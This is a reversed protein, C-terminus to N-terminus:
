GLLVADTTPSPNPHEYDVGLMGVSALELQLDAVKRRQEAARLDVAAMELEHMSRRLIMANRTCEAQLAIRNQEFRAMEAELDATLSPKPIWVPIIPLKAPPQPPITQRPGTPLAKGATPTPKVSPSTLNEYSGGQPVSPSAPPPPPPPPPQARRPGSPIPRIDSKSESSKKADGSDLLRPKTQKEEMNKRAIPSASRRDRTKVPSPVQMHQPPPSRSRRRKQPTEYQGEERERSPSWRAPGNSETNMNVSADRPPRTRSRSRERAQWDRVSERDRRQPRPSVPAHDRRPPEPSMSRRPVYSDRHVPSRRHPPPPSPARYRPPSLRHRHPDDFRQPPPSRDRRGELRSEWTRDRRDPPPVYHDRERPRDRARYRDGSYREDRGNFNPAVYSDGDRQSRSYKPPSRRGDYTDRRNDYHERDGRYHDPLTASPRAPSRRHFEDDRRRHSSSPEPRPPLSAM